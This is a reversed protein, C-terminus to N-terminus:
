KFKKYDINYKKMRQGIMRETIGLANAASGIHGKSTQLAKSISSKELHEIMEPLPKSSIEEQIPTAHEYSKKPQATCRCDHLQPPLHQPLLYQGQGILLISREMVNELERINGQWNYSLLMASASQSIKPKKKNNLKAFNELFYNSLLLIDSHRERLPPLFICFVNLRYYLDQRFTGEEVMEELPRNTATVVRVDIYVSETSGVREITREQLVRLLRSQAALTLEGVEDLFITGGDAMEFRGKRKQIAGTFAGKEHGFLESEILNEPLAACNITIFAKDRRLSNEHLARAVLEKGTGSEGRLMVTTTSQAVQEISEFVSRMSESNGVLKGQKQFPIKDSLAPQLLSHTQPLRVPEESQKQMTSQHLSLYPVFSHALVSLLRQEHEPDSISTMAKDIGLAGITKEHFKIPVCFFSIMEEEKRSHTRNLFLPNHMVDHLFFPKGTQIVRGVIGEGLAYHGQKKQGSSLGAAAEIYIDGDVESLLVLLARKAYTISCVFELADDLTIEKKQLLDLIHVLRILDSSNELIEAKKSKVACM